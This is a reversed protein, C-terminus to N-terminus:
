CKLNPTTDTQGKAIAGKLNANQEVIVNLGLDNIYECVNWFTVPYNNAFGGYTMKRLDSLKIAMKFSKRRYAVSARHASRIDMKLGYAFRPNAQSM